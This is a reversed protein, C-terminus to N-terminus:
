ELWEAVKKPRIKKGLHIAPAPTIEAPSDDTEFDALTKLTALTTSGPLPDLDDRYFDFWPLRYRQYEAPTLPPHPPNTGTIERWVLANCLHVFCRHSDDPNWVDPQHPDSYIEQRIRAGAGLGMPGSSCCCAIAEEEMRWGGWPAIPFLKSIFEDLLERLLMALTISLGPLIEKRFYVEPKMPVVQLQIGGFEATGSLQEEASFGRGVPMALFQRVIGPAISFGDLWPQQPLVLYDQPARNLGPRWPEGTIANIKGAAV